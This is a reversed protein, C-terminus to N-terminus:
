KDYREKLQEKFGDNIDICSRSKMVLKFAELLKMKRKHVLYSIVFCPSRSTGAFCYIMVIGGKLIANYIFRNVRSFYQKINSKEDDNIDIKLYIFEDPFSNKLQSVNILHTIKMEKLVNIDRARDWCTLYLKNPIIISIEKTKDIKNM